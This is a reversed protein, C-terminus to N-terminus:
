PRDIALRLTDDVKTGTREWSFMSARDPGAQALQDRLEFSDAIKDIAESIAAVNMPDVLIANSEGAVEATATTDSTIVPTGCAMAEIIPLGFGEYLSPFVLATAGRYLAALEEDSVSGVFQTCATLGHAHILRVTEQDGTGTFLLKAYRVARTMSFASLLRDINKHACRRGVHLFYPYGPQHRLGVPTFVSAAANGVVVIKERDIGAWQAIDTRSFESVTFICRARRAAPRVVSAYYLSRLHSSEGPVKLHILDHITFAIPIRSALPPNFGPSFYCGMSKGLLAHSVALPDFLSLKKGAIALPTAGAIRPIVEEAFRGIGHRGFWRSDYYIPFAAM